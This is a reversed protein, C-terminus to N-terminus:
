YESGAAQDARAPVFKYCPFGTVLIIQNGTEPYFHTTINM